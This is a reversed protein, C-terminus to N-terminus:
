LTDTRAPVDIPRHSISTRNRPAAEKRPLAPRGKSAKVADTVVAGASGGPKAYLRKVAEVLVVGGLGPTILEGAREWSKSAGTILSWNLPPMHVATTSATVHFLSGTMFRSLQQRTWPRGHGFAQSESLSWLSKRNAAAVIIRGEPALLRWAERMLLRPSDAEELAHLLVIRDFGGDSFPLRHEPAMVVVGGRPSDYRVEGLEDPVAGVCARASGEWLRLIPSPYGIILVADGKCPGWLDIMRQGMRDAAARGLRSAYFAELTAASQRM